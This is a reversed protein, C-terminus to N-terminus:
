ISCVASFCHFLLPQSPILIPHSAKCDSLALELRTMLPDKYRSRRYKSVGQSSYEGKNCTM